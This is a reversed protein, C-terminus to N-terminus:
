VLKGYTTEHDSLEVLIFHANLCTEFDVKKSSIWKILLSVVMQKKEELVKIMEIEEDTLKEM